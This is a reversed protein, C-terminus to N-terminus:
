YVRFLILGIYIKKNEIHEEITESFISLYGYDSQLLYYLSKYKNNYISSMERYVYNNFKYANKIKFRYYEKMYCKKKNKDSDLALSFLANKGYKLSYKFYKHDIEM